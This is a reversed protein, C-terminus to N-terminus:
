TKRGTEGGSGLRAEGLYKGGVARAVPSRGRIGTVLFRERSLERQGHNQALIRALSSAWFARPLRGWKKDRNKAYPAKRRGAELDGGKRWPGMELAEPIWARLQGAREQGEGRGKWLKAM